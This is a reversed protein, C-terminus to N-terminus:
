YGTYGITYLLVFVNIIFWILTQLRQQQQQQKQQQQQQQQQQQKQMCLM